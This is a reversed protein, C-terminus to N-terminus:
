QDFSRLALGCAKVLMPADRRLREANLKSGAKTVSMLDLQRVPIELEEEMQPCLEELSSVGGCLYLTSLEGQIGSSYFFQLARSLQQVVTNSFPRVLNEYVEEGLSGERLAYEVADQEMGERQHILNTLENGGFAQERNYIIEGGRFVNLALTSAGIDAIAVLKGDSGDGMLALVREMAYTDVDIIGCKLGASNVADERLEAGEKRCAVLLIDNLEPATPVPGLVEFDLAVEDLPYPIFQDAEVKVQDELDLGIFLNSLQLKKTIVFSSPVAVVAQAYRGGCIKLGREIADSVEAVVEVNGDVVATPPLPVVAYADLQIDRGHRSLSVLKVSSSGIDIGVWGASKGSFLSVM